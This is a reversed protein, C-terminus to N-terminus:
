REKPSNLAPNNSGSEREVGVLAMRADVNSRWCDRRWCGRRMGASALMGQALLGM